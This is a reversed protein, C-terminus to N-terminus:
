SGALRLHGTFTKIRERDRTPWIGIAMAQGNWPRDPEYIVVHPIEGDWLQQALDLLERETDVELVVAITGPPVPGDASEGVAHATQALMTGAPLKRVIVYHCLPSQKTAQAQPRM